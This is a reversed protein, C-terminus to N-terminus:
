SCRGQNYLSTDVPAIVNDGSATTSDSWKRPMFQTKISQFHIEAHEALVSEIEQDIGPDLPPKIWGRYAKSHTGLVYYSRRRSSKAVENYALFFFWCGLCCLKSVAIFGYAEIRHTLFHALLTLECHVDVQSNNILPRKTSFSSSFREYTLQSDSSSSQNSVTTLHSSGGSSIDMPRSGSSTDSGIASGALVKTSILTSISGRPVRSFVARFSDSTLDYEFLGQIPPVVEVTVPAKLQHRM